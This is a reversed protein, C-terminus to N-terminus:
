TYAGHELRAPPQEVMEAGALSSVLDAPRRGDLAIAPKTLWSGAEAQDGFAETAKALIEAFM